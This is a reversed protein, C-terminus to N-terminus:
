RPDKWLGVQHNGYDITVLFRSLLRNGVRARAVDGRAIDVVGFDTGAIAVRATTRGAANDGRPVVLTDPSTSDVIARIQRGDVTVIIEPEASFNFLTMLEPHIGEKQYTLLGARYDITVAKDAWVDAGLIGDAVGHLDVVLPTFRVSSKENLHASHMRSPPAFRPDLVSQRHASGLIFRGPKGDITVTTLVLLNKEITLALNVETPPPADHWPLVSACGDVLWAIAAAGVWARARGRSKSLM